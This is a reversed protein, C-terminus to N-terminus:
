PGTRPAPTTAPLPAPAVLQPINQPSTSGNGLQGLSNGGWCYLRGATSLACTHEHGATVHSFAYGGSVASPSTTSISTGNGLQGEENQGWCYAAGAGAVGCGHDRGPALAVFTLGGSVLRPLTVASESTGVGLQGETNEGWCYTGGAVTRGCTIRAGVQLDVFSLGGAVKVPTMSSDPQLSGLGLQGRDNSGWCYAAGDVTRGCTHNFGASLQVFTLSGVVPTPVAVRPGGSNGLRRAGNNGWCYATGGRLGCTHDYGATLSAFSLGGSVLVPIPNASGESADIIGNGLQGSENAGWCYATGDASRGCTHSYGSVVQVFTRGVASRVPSRADVQDGTGLQGSFNDGWCYLANRTNLACTHYGGASVQQFGIVNLVVRVSGRRTNNRARLNIRASYAGPPLAAATAQFRMTTPLLANLVSVQQIWGTHQPQEYAIDYPVGDLRLTDGSATRLSVIELPGAVGPVLQVVVSDPVTLISDRRVVLQTRVTDPAAGPTASSVIVLGSYTGDALGTPRPTIQLTTPTSTTSQLTTTMWGTATGSYVLRTSLGSLVTNANSSSVTVVASPGAVVSPDLPGFTLTGPSVRVSPGAPVRMTVWLPAPQSPDTASVTVIASYTGPPLSGSSATLTLTSPTASAGISATLWPSVGQEYLITRQLGSLVRTPSTIAVVAPASSSMSPVSDFTVTGRDLRLQPSPRRTLTVTLSVPAVGPTTSRVQVVSATPVGVPLRTAAAASPRVTLTAPATTRDLTVSTLSDGPTVVSLTGLSGGGGNRVIATAAPPLPQGPEVEFGLTSPEVVLTAAPEVRLVAVASVNAGGRGDTSQVVISAQGPAHTTVRGEAGTVTAVAANTSTFSLARGVLDSGNAARVLARYTLTAGLSITTDAPLLTITAVSLPFVTFARELDRGGVRARVRAPGAAMARLVGSSSVTVGGSVVTWEPSRGAVVRGARDETTVSLTVSDGVELDAISDPVLRVTAVELLELPPAAFSDAGVPIVLERTSEDLVVGDRTLRTLLTLICSVRGSAVADNMCTSVNVVLALTADTGSTGLVLSDRGVTQPANGGPPSYTVVAEVMAGPNAVVGTNMSVRLAGRGRLVGTTGSAGDGCGALLALMGLVSLLGHRLRAFAVAAMWRSDRMRSM